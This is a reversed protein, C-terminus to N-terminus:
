QETESEILEEKKARTLNKIEHERSLAESKTEYTERHVLEFPGRGRTYKAGEGNEHAEIREELRNTYGTYYTGDGCELVYVSHSM